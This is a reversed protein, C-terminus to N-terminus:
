GSPGMKSHSNKMKEELSAHLQRATKVDEEMVWQHQHMIAQDGAARILGGLERFRCTIKGTEGSLEIAAQIIAEVADHIFHPIKGDKEVEQAVFRILNERHEPSDPMESNMYIEYGYGQMRSRLAPHLQALDEKHGAIVLTFDCPVPKTQVMTGSSGPSRGTIPFEKNQIATLLSLQSEISLTSVEDIYLVGHHARHIAGAEILLHPPTEQGGSQYPDHRVDGLLGGEHFGTADVFPLPDADVPFLLKPQFAHNDPFVKKRLLVVAILLFVGWFLLSPQSQTWAFVASAVAILVLVSVYILTNVRNLDKVIKSQKKLTAEVEDAPITKSIPHTPDTKNHFLLTAQPPLPTLNQALAQGLMSKGTGPDGILLIFRRQRAAIKIIELADEQGIVQHILEPAIVIESTDHFPKM